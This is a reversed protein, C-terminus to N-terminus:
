FIKQSFYVKQIKTNFNKPASNWWKIFIIFQCLQETKKLFIRLYEIDITVWLMLFYYDVM